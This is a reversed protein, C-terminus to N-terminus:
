RLNIPAAIPVSDEGWDEEGNAQITSYREQDDELMEMYRHANDEGLISEVQVWPSRDDMRAMIAFRGNRSPLALVLKAV